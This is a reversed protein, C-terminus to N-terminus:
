DLALPLNRKEFHHAPNVDVVLGVDKSKSSTQGNNTKGNNKDQEINAVNWIELSMWCTLQKCNNQPGTTECMNKKHLLQLECINTQLSIQKEIDIARKQAQM